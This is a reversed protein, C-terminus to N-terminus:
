GEQRRGRGRRRGTRWRGQGSQLIRVINSPSNSAFTFSPIQPSSLLTCSFRQPSAARSGTSFYHGIVCTFLDQLYTKQALIPRSLASCLILQTSTFPPLPSSWGSPFSSRLAGFPESYVRFTSLACGPGEKGDIQDLQNRRKPHTQNAILRRATAWVHQSDVSFRAKQAFNFLLDIQFTLEEIRRKQHLQRM